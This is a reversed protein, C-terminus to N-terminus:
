SPKNTGYTKDFSAADLTRLSRYESMLADTELASYDIKEINEGRRRLKDSIRICYKVINANYEATNEDM